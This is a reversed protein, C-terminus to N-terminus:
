DSDLVVRNKGAKKAKLLAQDARDILTDVTCQEPGKEAVGISVTVWEGPSLGGLCTGAITQRLREAVGAAQKCDAGPLLAVFEEGGYRALTDFERLTSRCADALDKLVVDGVSHGYRDNVSKFDDIDLVLASIPLNFRESRRLEKEAVDYFSRRNYVQTLYDTKALYTARGLAEELQQSKRELEARASKLKRINEISILAQTLLPGLRFLLSAHMYDILGHERSVCVLAARFRGYRFPAHAATAYKDRLEFKDEWEAPQNLDHVIIPRGRTFLREFMASPRWITGQFEPLTSSFVEFCGSDSFLLVFSGDLSESENLALLINLLGSEATEATTLGRLGQLLLETHRRSQRERSRMRERDLAIEYLEENALSAVQEEIYSTM